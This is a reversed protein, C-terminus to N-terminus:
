SRLLDQLPFHLSHNSVLSQNILRTGDEDPVNQKKKQELLLLQEHEDFEKMYSDVESQLEDTNIEIYPLSKRIDQSSKNKCETIHMQGLRKYVGWKLATNKALEYYVADNAAVISKVTSKKVFKVHAFRSNENNENRYSYRRDSSPFEDDTGDQTTQKVKSVSISEIAGFDALM